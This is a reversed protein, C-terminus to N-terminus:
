GQVDLGVNFNFIKVTKDSSATALRLEDVYISNIAQQHGTFTQLSNDETLSWYKILGEQGATLLYGEANDPDSIILKVSEVRQRHEGFTRVLKSGKYLCVTSEYACVFYGQSYSITMISNNPSVWVCKLLQGSCKDWLRVTKDGAASIVVTSDESIDVSFVASTHGTLTHVLLSRSVDWLKVTKDHSGSVLLCGRLKLCLVQGKHGLSTRTTLGTRLNWMRITGDFSGSILLHRTFFQLCWVGKSHGTLIQEVEGTNIDWIMITQDASGTAVLDGHCTVCQVSQAHGVLEVTKFRANDWNYRLHFNDCFVRKWNPKSPVPVHITVEKCKGRWLINSDALRHWRKSVVSAVLLEGVSLHALIKLALKKPLLGVIDKQQKFSLYKSMFYIQRADLSQIMQELFENRRCDSWLRTYWTIIPKSDWPLNLVSSTVTPQGSVTEIEKFRNTESSNDNRNDKRPTRSLSITSTNYDSPLSKDVDLSNSAKKEKMSQKGTELGVLKKKTAFFTEHLLPPFKVRAVDEDGQVYASDIRYFSRLKKMERLRKKIKRTVHTSIPSFEIEPFRTRMTYMFDRHVSPQLVTYLLQIQTSSSHRLLQELFCCKQQHNWKSLCFTIYEQQRKFEVGSPSPHGRGRRSESLTVCALKDDMEKKTRKFASDTLHPIIEGKLHKRVLAHHSVLFELGNM